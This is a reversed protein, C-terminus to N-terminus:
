YIECISEGGIKQKKSETNTMLGRSTSIILIGLSPLMKPIEQYGLYVKRGPKSIRKLGRIVSEDKKYKLILQLYCSHDDPGDVKEVRAIFGEKALIKAIEYKIKSFPILVEGKNVLVANRIRTLMDAIPDTM